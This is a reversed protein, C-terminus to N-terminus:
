AGTAHSTWYGLTPPRSLLLMGVTFFLIVWLFVAYHAEREIPYQSSAHVDAIRPHHVRSQWTPSRSTWTLMLVLAGVTGNVAHSAPSCSRGDGNVLANGLVGTATIVSGM